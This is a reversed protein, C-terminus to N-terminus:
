TTTNPPWWGGGTEHGGIERVPRNTVGFVRILLDTLLIASRAWNAAYFLLHGLKTTRRVVVAM